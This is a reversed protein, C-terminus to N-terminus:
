LPFHLGGSGYITHAIEIRSVPSIGNDELLAKVESVASDLVSSTTKQANHSSNGDVREGTNIVTRTGLPTKTFDTNGTISGFDLRVNGHITARAEKDAFQLTFKVPQALDFSVEGATEADVLDELTDQIVNAQKEIDRIMEVRKGNGLNPVLRIFATFPVFKKQGPGSLSSVLPNDALRTM